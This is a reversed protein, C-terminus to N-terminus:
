KLKKLEINVRQGYSGPEDLCIVVKLVEYFQTRSARIEDGVRPLFELYCKPLFVEKKGVIWHINLFDQFDTRTSMSGLASNQQSDADM